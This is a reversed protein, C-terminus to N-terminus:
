YAPLLKQWDKDAMAEDIELVRQFIATSQYAQIGEAIEDLLQVSSCMPDEECRLVNWAMGEQPNETNHLFQYRHTIQFIEPNGLEFAAAFVIRKEYGTSESYLDLELRAM